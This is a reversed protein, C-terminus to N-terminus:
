ECPLRLRCLPPAPGRSSLTAATNIVLEAGNTLSLPFPFSPVSPFADRLTKLSVSKRGASLLPISVDEQRSVRWRNQNTLLTYLHCKPSFFVLSQVPLRFATLMPHLSLGFSYLQKKRSIVIKLRNNQDKEAKEAAVICGFM